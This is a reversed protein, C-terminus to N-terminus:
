RPVSALLRGALGHLPQHGESPPAAYGLAAWRRRDSAALERLAERAAGFDHVAARARADFFAARLARAYRARALEREGGELAEEVAALVLLARAEVVPQAGGALDLAMHERLPTARQADLVEGAALWLALHRRVSERALGPARALAPEAAQALEADPEAGEQAFRALLVASRGFRHIDLLLVAGRLAVSGLADYEGRDLAEALARALELDGREGREELRQVGRVLYFPWDRFREGVPPLLPLRRALAQALARTAEPREDLAEIWATLEGSSRASVSVACLERQGREGARGLGRLAAERLLPDPDDLARRVAAEVPALELMPVAAELLVDADFRDAARLEEMLEWTALAPMAALADLARLALEDPLAAFHERLFTAARADGRLARRCALEGRVPLAFEAEGEFPSALFENPLHAVRDRARGVDDERLERLGEVVEPRAAPFRALLGHVDSREGDAPATRVWLERAADLAAADPESALLLHLALRRAGAHDSAAWRRALERAFASRGARQLVSGLRAALRVQVVPSSEREAAEVAVEFRGLELALSAAQDRILPEEDRAAAAITAPFREPARSAARLLHARVAAGRAGLFFERLVEDRYGALEPDQALLLALDEALEPRELNERLATERAARDLLWSWIPFLWVIRDRPARRLRELARPWAAGAHICRLLLARDLDDLADAGEESDFLPALLDGGSAPDGALFAVAVRRDFARGRGPGVAEALLAPACGEPVGELALRRYLEDGLAPDRLAALREIGASGSWPLATVWARRLVAYADAAPAPEAVLEVGRVRLALLAAARVDDHADALLSRLVREGADGQEHALRQAAERRTRRAGRAAAAIWLEAARAPELAALGRTALRRTEESEEPGELVASLLAGGEPARILRRLGSERAPADLPQRLADLAAEPGREQAAASSPGALLLGASLAARRARSGSM